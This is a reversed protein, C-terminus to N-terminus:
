ASTRGSVPSATACFTAHIVFRFGCMGASRAAVANSPAFRRISSDLRYLGVARDRHPYRSSLEHLQPCTAARSGPRQRRQQHGSHAVHTHAAVCGLQAWGGGLLHRWRMEGEASTRSSRLEISM